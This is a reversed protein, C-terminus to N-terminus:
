SVSIVFSEAWGDLSRRLFSKSQIEITQAIREIHHNAFRHMQFGASIACSEVQKSRTTCVYRVLGLPTCASAAVRFGGDHPKREGRRCAKYALCEREVGSLQRKYSANSRILPM